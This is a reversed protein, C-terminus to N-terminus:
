VSLRVGIMCIYIFDCIELESCEGGHARAEFLEAGHDRDNFSCRTGIKRMRVASM